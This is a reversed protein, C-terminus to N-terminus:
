EEYLEKENKNGHLNLIKRDSLCLEKERLIRGWCFFFCLFARSRSSCGLHVPGIM